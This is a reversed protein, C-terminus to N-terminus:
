VRRINILKDKQFSVEIIRIGEWTGDVIAEEQYNLILRNDLNFGKSCYDSLFSTIAVNHTFIAIVKDEDEELVKKIFAKMRRKVENLSEGGNLKYNFDNEQMEQVVRIKKDGLNGLIREGLEKRINIDLELEKALYKATGISMVYNSAYIVNVNKLEKLLVLKKSEEEGLISLIRKERKSELSEGEPFALNNMTLANNILYITTM